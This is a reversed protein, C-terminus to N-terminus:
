YFGEVDDNRQKQFLLSVYLVKVVEVLGAEASGM